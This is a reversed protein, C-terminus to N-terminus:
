EQITYVATIPKLLFKLFAQYYYNEFQGTHGGLESKEFAGTIFNCTTGISIANVNQTIVSALTMM